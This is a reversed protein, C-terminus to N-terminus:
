CSSRSAWICRQLFARFPRNRPLEAVQLIGTLMPERKLFCLHNLRSFGVYCALIMGLLFPFVPMARTHRKISLTEEVLQEFGVKELVTAM